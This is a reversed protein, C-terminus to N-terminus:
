QDNDSRLFALLMNADQGVEVLNRIYWIYVRAVNRKM